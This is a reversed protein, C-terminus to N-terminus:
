DTVRCRGSTSASPDFLEVTYREPGRVASFLLPYYLNGFTNRFVNTDKDRPPHLQFNPSKIAGAAKADYWRRAMNRFAVDSPPRVVWVRCRPLRSQEGHDWLVFFIHPMSDLAGVSEPKKAAQTIRGAPLVGNFRPTDIANWFNAAKVDSGDSLDSGKKRGRGHLGTLLSVLVESWSKTDTPVTHGTQTALPAVTHFCKYHMELLDLAIDIDAIM